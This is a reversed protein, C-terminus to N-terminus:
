PSAGLQVFPLAAGICAVRLLWGRLGLADAVLGFLPPGVIGLAPMLASVAGMGVGEIGRAELWVPFYPLYAGLAGFVALYYLPLAFRM